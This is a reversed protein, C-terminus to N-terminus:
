LYGLDRLNGLVEAEEAPSLSSRPVAAAEAPPPADTAAPPPGTLSRGDVPGPLPVGLLELCTPFLDMISPRQPLAAGRFAPGHAIFIGEPRHSGTHALPGFEEQPSAFLRDGPGSFSHRTTCRHDKLTLVLDPLGGTRPGRYIEERRQVATVLPTGDAPDRFSSLAAELEGRVRDYDDRAVTGRPERGRLNLFVGGLYGLAYARTHEWDISEELLDLGELRQARPAPLIRWLLERLRPPLAGKAAASLRRSVSPGAVGERFRLFGLRSLLVNLNVDRELPGFGHDSMVLLHDDPALGAALRPIFRDVARYAEFVAGAPEDPPPVRGQALAEEVRDWFVHQLRDTGTLVAVALDWPGSAALHLVLEMRVAELALVERIYWARLDGRHKLAHRSVHVDPRYSPFRQLIDRKLSDPFTYRNHEGPTDMGSVLRGNIEEPPYTVPVNVVLSRRGARGAAGWLTTGSAMARHVPVLRYSGERRSLFDVVGHRGPNTGTSFSTWAAPTLPPTSSLLPRRAGERILRALNPLEGAAVLADIVRFEGGDIGLVFVRGM